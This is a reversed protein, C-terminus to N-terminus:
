WKEVAISGYQNNYSCAWARVTCKPSDNQCAALATRQATAKSNNGRAAWSKTGVAIAACTNRFYAASKCNSGCKEIAAQEAAAGTNQGVVWGVALVRATATEVPREPATDCSKAVKETDVYGTKGNFSTKFWPHGTVPNTANALVSIRQNNELMAAVPYNQANPGTRVNTVDADRNCIVASNVKASQAAEPDCSQAVFDSDIFGSKGAAKVSFWKHGSEPNTSEGTVILSTGNSLEVLVSFQKAGAGTRLNSM